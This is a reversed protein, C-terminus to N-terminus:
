PVHVLPWVGGQADIAVLDPLPINDDTGVLLLSLSQGVVVRETSLKCGGKGLYFIRVADRPPEIYAVDPYGDGDFDAVVPSAAGLIPYPGCNSQVLAASAGALENRLFYIQESSAVIIDNAGDSNFDAVFLDTLQGPLPIKTSCGTMGPDQNHCLRLEGTEAILGDGGSSPADLHTLVMRAAGPSSFSVGPSLTNLKAHVLATTVTGTVAIAQTLGAGSILPVGVTVSTITGTSNDFGTSNRPDLPRTALPDYTYIALSGMTGSGGAVVLQSGQGLPDGIAMALPPTNVPYPVPATFYPSAATHALVYVLPTVGDTLVLEDGQVSDLNGLVARPSSVNTTIKPGVTFERPVGLDAALVISVGLLNGPSPTFQESGHALEESGALARVTLRVEETGSPLEVVFRETEALTANGLEITQASHRSPAPTDAEISLADVTGRADSGLAASGLTLAIRLRDDCALVGLGCSMTFFAGRALNM